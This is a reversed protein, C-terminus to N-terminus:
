SVVSKRIDNQDASTHDASSLVRPEADASATDDALPSPHPYFTAGRRWLRFAQWYIGAFVRATMFPYRLLTKALNLSTLPRRQLTLVGDFMPRGEQLNRISVTLSDGPSKIKWQYSMDMPLFPSVHFQKAHTAHIVDSTDAPGEVVYCHTEGWPTNTVEAVVCEVASDSEDFCFYFSVPNIVYGFYRLHTLLRIPGTLERGTRERVLQRVSDTLSVASDGFHDARRFWALNPGRCSWFWRRQFVRDTEALDLYVLFLRYRFAHQFPEHRAHSVHGEYLCSRAAASGNVSTM